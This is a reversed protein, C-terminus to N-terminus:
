SAGAGTEPTEDGAPPDADSGPASAAAPPEPQVAGIGATLLPASPRAHRLVLGSVRRAGSSIEITQAPPAFYGNLHATLVYSGAPLGPLEFRGNHDTVAVIATAGLATVVAGAIPSEGEDRVVGQLAGHIDSV